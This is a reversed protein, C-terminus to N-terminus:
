LMGTMRLGAAAALIQLPVIALGLVSFRLASLPQGEERALRRCVLTAVSGTVLLNPGIAMGLIAAWRGAAGMTQVAAAAPLNNLGAALLSRVGVQEVFGGHLALGTGLLARTTSVIVIVPVLDLLAGMSVPRLRESHIRENSGARGLLGTLVAVTLVSVMLWAAWGERVYTWVPLHARNLVLLTSLNSTPLLFSTANATLAVAVAVRGARLGTRDAVRLGVPIAVVAAVDINTTGSVIATFGLVAALALRPGSRAPILVRALFRFVGVRDGLAGAVIVAALTLCPVAVSLVAPWVRHPEIALAVAGLM